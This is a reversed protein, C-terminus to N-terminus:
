LLAVNENTGGQSKTLSGTRSTTLNKAKLATNSVTSKTLAAPKEMLMPSFTTDGSEVSAFYLKDGDKMEDLHAKASTSGYRKAQIIKLKAM